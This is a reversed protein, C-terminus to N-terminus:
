VLVHEASAHVRECSSEGFLTITTNLVGIANGDYGKRQQYAATITGGKQINFITYLGQFRVGEALGEMRLFVVTDLINSGAPAVVSVVVFDTGREAMVNTNRYYIHIGDDGAPYDDESPPLNSDIYM